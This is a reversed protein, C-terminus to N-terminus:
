ACFAVVNVRVVVFVRTGVQAGPAVGNLRADTPSFGAAISAVHTGHSGSLHVSLVQGEDYINVTYSILDEDDIFSFQKEVRYDTMPVCARLDAKTSLVARWVSGDHWVVADVVAGPDPVSSELLALCELEKDADKAKSSRVADALKATEEATTKKVRESIRENAEDQFPVLDNYMRMGLCWVGTPNAWDANLHLKRGSLGTIFGDKVDATTTRMRIDGSGSADVQEIVKATGQSTVRLLPSSVDVGSDLIAIM